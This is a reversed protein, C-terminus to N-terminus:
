DSAGTNPTHIYDPPAGAGEGGASVLTHLPTEPLRM